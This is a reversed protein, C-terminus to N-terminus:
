VYIKLFSKETYILFKFNKTFDFVQMVQLLFYICDVDKVGKALPYDGMFRM